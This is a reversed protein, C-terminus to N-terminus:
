YQAFSIEQWKVFEDDDAMGFSSASTLLKRGVEEAEM